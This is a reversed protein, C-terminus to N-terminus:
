RRPTQPNGVPFEKPEEPAPVRTRRRDFPDPLTLQLFPAKRTRPPIPTATAAATSADMTPDDLSARDSVPLTRIPLPIPRNVDPSPVRIRGNDPLSPTQPLPPPDPLSSQTEDFILRPHLPSRKSDVPLHPLTAHSSPLPLTPPKLFDSASSRPPSPTREPRTTEVDQPPLVKALLAGGDDDPFTFSTRESDEARGRAVTKEASSEEVRSPNAPAMVVASRSCGLLAMSASVCCLMRIPVSSQAIM